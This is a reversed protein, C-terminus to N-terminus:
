FGRRRGRAAARRVLGAARTTAAAARQARTKRYVEAFVMAEIGTSCLLGGAVATLPSVPSRLARSGLWLSLGCIVARGAYDRAVMLANRPSPQELLAFANEGSPLAPCPPCTGDGPQPQTTPADAV